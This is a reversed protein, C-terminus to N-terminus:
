TIINLKAKIFFTMSHIVEALAAESCNFTLRNSKSKLADLKSVGKPTLRTKTETSSMSFKTWIVTKDTFELTYFTNM